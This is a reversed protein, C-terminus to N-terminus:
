EKGSNATLFPDTIELVGGHERQRRGRQNEAM